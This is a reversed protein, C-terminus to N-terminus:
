EYRIYAYRFESIQKLIKTIDRWEELIMNYNRGLRDISKIVLVDNERLAKKLIQYQERNFDKGSEFDTLIFRSDVGSEILAQIQRDENQSSSSCRAYGWTRSDVM